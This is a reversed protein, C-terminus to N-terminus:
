IEDNVKLNDINYIHGIVSVPMMARERSALIKSLRKDAVKPNNHSILKGIFRDNKYVVVWKFHLDSIVDGEYIEKGDYDLVGTALMIDLNQQYGGVDYNTVLLNGDRDIDLDYETPRYIMRSNSRDWTRIKINM